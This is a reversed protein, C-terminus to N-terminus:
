THLAQHAHVHIATSASVMEVALGGAQKDEASSQQRALWATLMQAQLDDRTSRAAACTFASFILLVQSRVQPRLQHLSACAATCDSIAKASDRTPSRLRAPCLHPGPDCAATPCIQEAPRCTKEFAGTCLNLTQYTRSASCEAQSCRAM